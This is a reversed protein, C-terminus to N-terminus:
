GNQWIRGKLQFDKDMLFSRSRGNQYKNEM